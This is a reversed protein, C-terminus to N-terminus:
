HLTVMQHMGMHAHPLGTDDSPVYCALAYPGPPLDLHFVAFQGPSMANAGHQIDTWPSPGPLPLGNDLATYFDSIYQDTIGARTPRFVAEHLEDGQVTFLFSGTTSFDTPATFMPMDGASGMSAVVVSQFGPMGSWVMKGVVRLTHVNVPTAQDFEAFDFMYYTGPTLPLTAEMPAYSSTVVGGLLTGDRVLQRAGLATSTLDDSLGLQLDNLVEALTHGPNVRVVEFGHYDTDASGVRFTVWGAHVVGPATFEQTTSM